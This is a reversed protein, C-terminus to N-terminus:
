HHRRGYNGRRHSYHHPEIWLGSELIVGLIIIAGDAALTLPTLAVKTLTKVRQEADSPSTSEGFHLTIPTHLHTMKDNIKPDSQYRTGHLNFSFLLQNGQFVGYHHDNFAHIIQPNIDLLSLSANFTATTYGNHIGYTGQNFAYRVPLEDKHTLLFVLAPDSDLIYHYKQSAFVIKGGDQTVMFSEITDEYSTTTMGSSGNDEWLMATMCGSLLLAVIIMMVLQRM